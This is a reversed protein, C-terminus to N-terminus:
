RVWAILQAAIALAMLLAVGAAELAFPSPIRHKM